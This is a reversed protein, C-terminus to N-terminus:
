MPSYFCYGYGNEDEEMLFMRFRKDGWGEFVFEGPKGGREALERHLADLDDVVFSLTEADHPKYNNKVILRIEVDDRKLTVTNTDRNITTFGMVSEYYAIAPELEKVPFIPSDEDPSFSRLKAVWDGQRKHGFQHNLPGAGFRYPERRNM